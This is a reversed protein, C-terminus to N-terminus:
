PKPAYFYHISIEQNDMTGTYHKFNTENTLSLFDWYCYIFYFNTEKENHKKLNEPFCVGFFSILYALTKNPFIGSHFLPATLSSKSRSCLSLLRLLLPRLTCTVWPLNMLAVSPPQCPSGCMEM